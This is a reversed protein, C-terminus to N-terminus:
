GIARGSDRGPRDLASAAKDRWMGRRCHPTYRGAHVAESFSRRPAATWSRLVCTARRSPPTSSPEPSSARACGKISTTHTGHHLGGAICCVTPISCAIEGPMQRIRAAEAEAVAVHEAVLARFAPSALTRYSLTNTSALLRVILIAVIALRSRDIGWSRAAPWMGIRDFALGLGVAAAIVLEFQANDAVGDGLKQVCQFVFGVTVFLAAFRSAPHPWDHPVWVAFIALAPAIWQLRGLNGWVHELRYARPASLQSFTAARFISGCVALGLLVAGMGVLVARGAQRRDVLGLWVFATAPMAVVNHKYFGAVAMLLVAPAVGRGGALRRLLWVLAWAMIALAPLDPDDMGVYSAFFRAMTALFWLGALGAAARSAGLQRVLAMVALAIALTALISLLRGVYLADFGLAAVAAVLYFSLPPYNNTVLSDPAPYLTHGAAVQDAHFANWPENVDIELPLFARWVPWALYVACLIGLVVLAALLPGRWGPAERRRYGGDDHSAPSSLAAEDADAQGCDPGRRGARPRAGARM